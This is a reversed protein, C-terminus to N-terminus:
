TPDGDENKIEEHVEPTNCYTHWPGAGRRSGGPRRSKAGSVIKSRNQHSESAFSATHPYDPHHFTKGADIHDEGEIHRSM